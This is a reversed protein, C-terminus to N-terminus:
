EVVVISHIELRPVTVRALGDRYDFPLPQGEPQLTIKAPNTPTRISIKLPGVAAISGILPKKTDWHPGSTNVLNVALRGQVRCVSVDVDHSGTVEVIPRPFLHRALDSLFARMGPSRQDLYGRSFSFYTAAIKGKGLPTVSAAPQAESAADSTAHLQGFARARDGLKPTQTQGRTSVLADGHALYRREGQSSELTVDLESAFLSAAQPGVLLLSGGNEVYGILQRKFDPELYDCKAVVLLPYEAMQKALVHESVVDVVQQSEVLAQMTGSMRSLDRSFLGNIERYHSATSYLLAIQPVPTAGQCFPQRARCFRAVEAIVPLHGEPM